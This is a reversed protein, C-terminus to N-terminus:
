ARRYSWRRIIGHYKNVSSIVCNYEKGKNPIFFTSVPNKLEKDLNFFINIDPEMSGIFEYTNSIGEPSLTVVLPRSHGPPIFTSRASMIGTYTNINYRNNVNLGVYKSGLSSLKKFCEADYQPALTGNQLVAYVFKLIVSVEGEFSNAHIEKMKKM